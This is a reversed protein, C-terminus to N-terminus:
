TVTCYGSHSPSHASDTGMVSPSGRLKGAERGKWWKERGCEEDETKDVKAGTNWDRICSRGKRDAEKMRAMIVEEVRREKARQEEGAQWKINIRVGARRGKQAVLSAELELGRIPRDAQLLKILTGSQVRSYIDARPQAIWWCNSKYNSNTWSLQGVRLAWKSPSIFFLPSRSLRNGRCVFNSRRLTNIVKM